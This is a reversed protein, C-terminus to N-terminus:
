VREASSIFACMNLIIWVVCLKLVCCRPSFLLWGPNHCLILILELSHFPFYIYFFFFDSLAAAYSKRQDEQARKRTQRLSPATHSLTPTQFSFRGAKKITAGRSLRHTTPPAPVCLSILLFKAFMAFFMGGNHSTAMHMSLANQDTLHFNCM